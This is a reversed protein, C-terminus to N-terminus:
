KTKTPKELDRLKGKISLIIQADSMGIKRKREIDDYLENLSNRLLGGGLGMVGLAKKSLNDPEEFGGKDTLDSFTDSLEEIVSRLSVMFKDLVDSDPIKNAQYQELEDILPPIHKKSFIDSAQGVASFLGELAERGEQQENEQKELKDSSKRISPSPKLVVDHSTLVRRFAVIIVVAGIFIATVGVSESSLTSGFLTIDSSGTAGLYVLVVGLGALLVGVLSASVAIVILLTNSRKGLDEM